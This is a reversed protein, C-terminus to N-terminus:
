GRAQRPDFVGKKLAKLLGGVSCRIDCLIFM